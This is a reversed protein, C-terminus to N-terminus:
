VRLYNADPVPEKDIPQETSSLFMQMANILSRVEAAFMALDLNQAKWTEKLVL